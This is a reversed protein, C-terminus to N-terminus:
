QKVYKLFVQNPAYINILTIDEQNMIGKIMIVHGETDKKIKKIKFDIKDLILVVVGVKKQIGSAQFIM